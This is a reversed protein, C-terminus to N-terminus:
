RMLWAAVQQDNKKLYMAIWHKGSQYHKDTNFIFGIDTKYNTFINKLNFNYLEKCVCIGDIKDMFDIPAANFYKYYSFKNQCQSQFADIDENTLWVNSKKWSEPAWPAFSREMHKISDKVFPKQLWCSEDWCEDKFKEYFFNWISKVDKSKIKKTNQRNWDDRLELLTKKDYCTFDHERVNGSCRPLRM